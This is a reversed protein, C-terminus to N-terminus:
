ALINAFGAREQQAKEEHRKKLCNKAIHGARGCHWCHKEPPRAGRNGTAAMAHEHKYLADQQEKSRQEVNLLKGVVDDLVLEQSTNELITTLAHYEEPLGAMLTWIFDTDGTTHGAASLQERISTARSIYQVLTEQQEKKLLVLERRLQMRRANVKATYTKALTEWAEKASKCAAVISQHQRSVNLGVLALAQQDLEEEQEQQARTTSGTMGKEVIKWSKKSILTWRM